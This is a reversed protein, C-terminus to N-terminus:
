DREKGMERYKKEDAMRLGALYLHSLSSLLTEEFCFAADPQSFCWFGIEDWFLCEGIKLEKDIKDKPLEGIQSVSLMLM